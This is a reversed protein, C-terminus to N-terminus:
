PAQVLGAGVDAAPLDLRRATQTLRTWLERATMEPASELHLAAIGAVFPAAMSTGGFTRYQQPMPWSSHIRAGPAAIDIQGGKARVGRCSSDVVGMESNVAGVALISPCNAPRVVPAIIGLSRASLNGAAAILLTGADLARRAAAEYIRSYRQGAELATGVSLSVVRCRNAIAWNIGALIDTDTGGGADNMVKGAFIEADSAIGYRPPVAPTRPGCATGICHTGHGAADEVELGPVFSKATISRQRFDPHSLNFGTDLVAVRVGRGTFRSSSVGTAQLGWTVHTEDFTRAEAVAGAGTDLAALTRESEIAVISSEAARLLDEMQDFQAEVVVLGLKDFLLATDATVDWIGAASSSDDAARAIKVNLVDALASYGADGRLLVIYRRSHKM